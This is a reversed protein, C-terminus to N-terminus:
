DAYTEWIVQKVHENEDFLFTTKINIGYVFINNIEKTIGISYKIRDNYTYSPKGFLNLIKNKGVGVHLDNQLRVAPSNIEIRKLWVKKKNFSSVSTTLVYGDYIWDTMHLTVEPERGSKTYFNKSKPEGIGAIIDAESCGGYLNEPLPKEFLKLSFNVILNEEKEASACSLLFLSFLIGIFYKM